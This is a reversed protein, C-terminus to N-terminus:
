TGRSYYLFLINGHSTNGAILMYKTKEGMTQFINYIDYIERARLWKTGDSLKLCFSDDPIELKSECNYIENKDCTFSCKENTKPCLKMEEM